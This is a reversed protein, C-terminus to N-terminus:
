APVIALMDRYGIRGTRVCIIARRARPLLRFTAPEMGPNLAGSFFHMLQNLAIREGELFDSPRFPAILEYLASLITELTLPTLFFM